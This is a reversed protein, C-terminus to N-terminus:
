RVHIQLNKDVGRPTYLFKFDLKLFFTFVRILIRKLVSANYYYPLFKAVFNKRPKKRDLLVLYESLLM